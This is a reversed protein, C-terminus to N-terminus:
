VRDVMMREIISDHCYLKCIPVGFASGDGDCSSRLPERGSSRVRGWGLEWGGDERGEERGGGEVDGSFGGQSGRGAVGEEEEGGVGGRPDAEHM